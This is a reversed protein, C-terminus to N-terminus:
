KRFTEHGGPGHATPAGISCLDFAHVHKQAAARSGSYTRESKVLLDLFILFPPTETRLFFIDARVFSSSRRSTRTGENQNVAMALPAPLSGASPSTRTSLGTLPKLLTSTVGLYSEFISDSLTDMQWIQAPPFKM